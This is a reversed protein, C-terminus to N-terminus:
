AHADRKIMRTRLPLKFAQRRLAERAMDETIGAFEFLVTGAHVHMGWYNVEGKGSGMRSEPPHKTYPIHPFVRIWMKGVRGLYHGATVRAAEIHKASIEGSQLVQIGYDGFALTNGSSATHNMRFGRTHQKRYKVRSPILPM